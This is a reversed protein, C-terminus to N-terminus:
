SCIYKNEDIYFQIEFLVFYSTYLTDINLNFFFRSQMQSNFETNQLSTM